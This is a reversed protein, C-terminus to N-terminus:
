SHSHSAFAISFITLLTEAHSHVIVTNFMSNLTHAKSPGKIIWRVISLSSVYGLKQRTASSGNGLKKKWVAGGQSKKSRNIMPFCNFKRAYINLPYLKRAFWVVLSRTINFNISRAISVVQYQVRWRNVWFCIEFYHLFLQTRM